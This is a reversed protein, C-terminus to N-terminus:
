RSASSGAAHHDLRVSLQGRRTVVRQVEPYRLGAGHRQSAHLGGHADAGQQGLTDAVRDADGEGVIRDLLHLDAFAIRCDDPSRLRPRSRTAQGDHPRASTFTSSSVRRTFAAMSRSRNETGMRTATMPHTTFPGPSARSASTPMAEPLPSPNMRRCPSTTAFTGSSSSTSASNTSARLTARASAARARAPTPYSPREVNPAARASVPVAILPLAIKHSNATASRDGGRSRRGARGHPRDWARGHRAAGAADKGGVVHPVHVDRPRGHVGLAGHPLTRHMGGGGVQMGVEAWRVVADREVHHAVGVGGHVDPEVVRALAVFRRVGEPRRRPDLATRVTVGEHDVLVGAGEVLQEGGVPVASVGLGPAAGDEVQSGIGQPGGCPRAGIRCAQRDERSEHAPVLHFRPGDAVRDTERHIAGRRAEDPGCPM